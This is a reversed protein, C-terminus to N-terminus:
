EDSAEIVILDPSSDSVSLQSVSSDSKRDETEDNSHGAALRMTRRIARMKAKSRRKSELDKAKQEESRNRYWWYTYARKRARVAAKREDTAHQWCRHHSVRARANDLARQEPSRNARSRRRAENRKERDKWPM